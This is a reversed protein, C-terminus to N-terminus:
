DDSLHHYKEFCISVVVNKGNDGIPIDIEVYDNGTKDCIQKIDKIDKIFGLTFEKTM